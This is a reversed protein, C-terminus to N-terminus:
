DVKIHCPIKLELEKKRQEKIEEWLKDVKKLAIVLNEVAVNLEEMKDLVEQNM